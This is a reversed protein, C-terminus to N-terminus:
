GARGAACAAASTPRPASASPPRRPRSRTGCGSIRIEPSPRLTPTRPPSPCSCRICSAPLSLKRSFSHSAASASGRSAPLRRARGVAHGAVVDAAHRWDAPPRRTASASRGVRQRVIALARRQDHRAAPAPPNRPMRSRDGVPQPPLARQRQPAAAVSKDDLRDFGRPMSRGHDGATASSLSASALTSAGRTPRGAGDIGRRRLGIQLRLLYGILHEDIAHARTPPDTDRVRRSSLEEPADALSPLNVLTFSAEPFQKWIALTMPRSPSGASLPVHVAAPSRHGTRGKAM